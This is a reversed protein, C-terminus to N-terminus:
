SYFCPEVVMNKWGNKTSNLDAFRKLTADNPCYESIRPQQGMLGVAEAYYQDLGRALDYGRLRLRELAGQNLDTIQPELM